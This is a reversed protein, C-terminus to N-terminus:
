YSLYQEMITRKSYTKVSIFFFERMETDFFYTSQGLEHVRGGIISIKHNM